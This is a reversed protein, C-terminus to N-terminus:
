ELDPPLVKAIWTDYDSTYGVKQQQARVRQEIATM